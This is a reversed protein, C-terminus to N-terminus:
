GPKPNSSSATKLRGLVVRNMARMRITLDEQMDLLQQYTVVVEPRTMARYKAEWVATKSEEVVSQAQERARTANQLLDAMETRRHSPGPMPATQSTFVPSPSSTKNQNAALAAAYSPHLPAPPPPAAAAPPPVQPIPIPTTSTTPGRYAVPNSRREPHRLTCLSGQRNYWCNACAGDTVQLASSTRVVICTGDFAGNNRTCRDCAKDRPAIDGVAQMFYAALNQPKNDNFTPRAAPVRKIPTTALTALFENHKAPIEFQPFRQRYLDICTTRGIAIPLPVAAFSHELYTTDTRTPPRESASIYDDDDDGYLTRQAKYSQGCEPQADAKRKGNNVLKGTAHIGHQHQIADSMSEQKLPDRSQCEASSDSDSDSEPSEESDSVSPILPPPM